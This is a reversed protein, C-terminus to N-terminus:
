SNETEKKHHYHHNHKNIKRILYDTNVYKIYNIRKILEMCPNNMADNLNMNIKIKDKDIYTVLKENTSIILEIHDTFFAHINDNSLKLTTCKNNFAIEKVYINNEKKNSEKPKIENLDQYKDEFYKIFSELIKVKNNLKDHYKKMSFDFIVENKNIYKFMEKNHNLLIKTNDKYFVGIDGNNLVYGIGFRENYNLYHMIYTNIDKVKNIKIEELGQISDYKIQPDIIPKVISILETYKEEKNLVAEDFDDYIIENQKNFSKGRNTKEPLYKPVGERNFFEHYIIQNLTPREKPDKKLIQIILNEAAKSIKREFKPPNEKINKIMLDEKKDKDEFPYKGTLLKCMIIGLSWIDVEFTYEVIRVNNQENKENKDLFPIEPAQYVKTGAIEAIKNKKNQDLKISLGFDGIKLQMNKGLFLNDLKLDRHIINNRHINNLAIIIQIMYNQVEKETLFDRKDILKQLTGNECYELFIFIFQEDEKYSIIKVIDPRDFSKQINIEEQCIIKKKINQKKDIIKGAIIDGNETTYKYVQGFGGKGLLEHKYCKTQKKEGNEEIEIKVLEPSENEPTIIDKSM